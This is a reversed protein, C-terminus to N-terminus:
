LGFDGQLLQEGNEYLPVNHKEAIAFAQELTQVMQANYTKAELNVDETHSLVVLYVHTDLVHHTVLHASLYPEHRPIGKRAIYETLMSHDEVFSWERWILSGDNDRVVLRFHTGQDDEITVNSFQEVLTHADIRTFM